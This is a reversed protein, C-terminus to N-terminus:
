IIKIGNKGNLKIKKEKETHKKTSFRSLEERKATNKTHKHPYELKSIKICHWVDSRKIHIFWLFIMNSLMPIFNM